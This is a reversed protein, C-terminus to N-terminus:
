PLLPVFNSVDENLTANAELRYLRTGPKEQNFGYAM